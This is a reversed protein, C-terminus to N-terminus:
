EELMKAYAEMKKVTEDEAYKFIQLTQANLHNWADEAHMRLHTAMGEIVVLLDAVRGDIYSRNPDANARLLHPVKTEEDEEIFNWHKNDSRFQNIFRRKQDEVEGLEVPDDVKEEEVKEGTTALEMAARNRRERLDNQIRAHIAEM